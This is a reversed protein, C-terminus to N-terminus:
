PRGVKKFEDWATEILSATWTEVVHSGGMPDFVRHLGAEERMLHQINRAWRRGDASGPRMGVDHPVVELADVGGIAGAYAAATMGILRDTPLGDDVEPVYTQADLWISGPEIGQSTLWRQWLLRMARIMAVGEMVHPGTKFTWIFSQFAENVDLGAAEFLGLAKQAQELGLRLADVPGEAASTDLSWKRVSAVESLCEAHFLAKEATLSRVNRTCSGKWGGGLMRKVPFNGLEVRDADLHLHIMELHVEELWQMTSSEDQLRIGEAGGLLSPMVEAASEARQTLSWPNGEKKSAIAKAPLEISHVNHVWPPKRWKGTKASQLRAADAEWRSLDFDPFDLWGHDAM